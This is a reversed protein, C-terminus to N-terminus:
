LTMVSIDTLVHVLPFSCAGTLGLRAGQFTIPWGVLASMAPFSVSVTDGVLLIASAPDLGFRCGSACYPQQMVYGGVLMVPIGGTGPITFSAIAPQGPQVTGTFALTGLGPCGSAVTTVGTPSCGPGSGTARCYSISFHADAAYTGDGFYFERQGVYTGRPVSLLPVGNVFLTFLTPAAVVRAVIPANTVPFAATVVNVGDVGLNPTNVLAIQTSSFHAAVFRGLNDSASLQIGYRLIGGPGPGAGSSFVQFAAEMEFGTDFDMSFDTRSIYSLGQTPGVLLQGSSPQLSGPTGGQSFCQAAPMTNLAANYVVPGQAPTVGAVLALTMAITRLRTNM